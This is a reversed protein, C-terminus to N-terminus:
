QNPPPPEVPFDMDGRIKTIEQKCEPCRMIHVRMGTLQSDSMGVNTMKFRLSEAREKLNTIEAKEDSSLRKRSARGEIRQIDTELSKWAFKQLFAHKIHRNRDYIAEPSPPIDSWETVHDSPQERHKDM